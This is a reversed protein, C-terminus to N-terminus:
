QGRQVRVRGTQSAMIVAIRLKSRPHALTITGGLSCRGIGYFSIRAPPFTIWSVGPPLDVRRAPASMDAPKIYYSRSARDFIVDYTVNQAVALQRAAQLERALQEAGKEVAWVASMNVAFPILVAALVAMIAMAVMLNALNFQM